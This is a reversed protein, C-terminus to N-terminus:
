IEYLLNHKTSACLLKGLLPIFSVGDTWGVTLMNFGNYYQNKSHDYCRSLFEIHKYRKSTNKFMVIYSTDIFFGM